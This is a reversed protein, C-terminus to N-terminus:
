KITTDGNTSRSKSHRDEFRDKYWYIIAAVLRNVRNAFCQSLTRDRHLSTYYEPMIVFRLNFDLVYSGLVLLM